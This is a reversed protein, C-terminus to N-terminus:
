CYLIGIGGSSAIDMLSPHINIDGPDTDFIIPADTPDLSRMREFQTVIDVIAAQSCVFNVYVLTAIFKHFDNEYFMRNNRALVPEFIYEFFKCALSLKKDYATVLYHGRMHQLAALVADRGQSSRMLRAGKLEDSQLRFDRKLREVLSKAEQEDMAVSAYTFFPQQSDLLRNGTFGAEHM